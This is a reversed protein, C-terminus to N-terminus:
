KDTMAFDTYIYTSILAQRKNTRIVFAILLYVNLLIIPSSVFFTNMQM